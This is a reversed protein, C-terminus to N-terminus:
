ANKEPSQNMCPNEATKVAQAQASHSAAGAFAIITRQSPVVVRRSVVGSGSLGAPVMRPYKSKSVVVPVNMSTASIAQISGDPEVGAYGTWATGNWHAIGNVATEGIRTFGGVAFLETGVFALEAIEGESQAVVSWSTGDWRSIRTPEWEDGPAYAAYVRGDPAVALSVVRGDIGDGMARWGAEGDWVAVGDKVLQEWSYDAPETKMLWYAM